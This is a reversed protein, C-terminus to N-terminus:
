RMCEDMMMWNLKRQHVDENKLTKSIQNNLGQAAGNSETTLTYRRNGVCMPLNREKELKM